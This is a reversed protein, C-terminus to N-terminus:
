MRSTPRAPSMASLKCTLTSPKAMVSCWPSTGSREVVVFELPDYKPDLTIFSTSGDDNHRSAVREWLWFDPRRRRAAHHNPRTRPECLPGALIAAIAPPLPFDLGGRAAAIEKLNRSAATSVDGAAEPRGAYMVESLRRM